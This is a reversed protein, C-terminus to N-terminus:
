IAEEGKNDSSISIAEDIRSIFIMGDGQRGTYATNKIIEVIQSVEKDHCVIEIKAKPTFDTLEEVDPELEDKEKGFGSVKTVSMGSVPITKLAKTIKDLMFLRVYAKIEKM